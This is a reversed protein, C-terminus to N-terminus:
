GFSGIKEFGKLSKDDLKANEADQRNMRKLQSASNSVAVRMMGCFWSAKICLSDFVGEFKQL